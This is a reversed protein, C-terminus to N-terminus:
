KKLDEPLHNVTKLSSIQPLDSDGVKPVGMKKQDQTLFGKNNALYIISTFKIHGNRSEYCNLLFNKCNIENFKEYDMSSLKLFYKEGIEYTFSNAIAMAVKYWEYYTATISIKKRSLYSIITLMTKRDGAKNKDKPNYLADRNSSYKIKIEKDTKQTNNIDIDSENIDFYEFEEKIEIDHDFSVFCLRSTDSGSKDLEINYKDKFYSSVKDFSDKHIKDISTIEIKFNLNLCVLGKIGENSPSKWFSFVYPDEKFQSNINELDKSDLKDIDLVIISNYNKLNERKRNIDFTACFTVAPLNKKYSNYDEKKDAQILERLRSIQDKYKNSKIENLVESITLEKSLKAWTNEQYSVKTELINQYKKNM